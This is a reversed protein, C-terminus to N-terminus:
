TNRDSPSASSANVACCTVPSLPSKQGGNEDAWGAVPLVAGHARMTTHPMGESALGDINQSRVEDPRVPDGGAARILTPLGDVM